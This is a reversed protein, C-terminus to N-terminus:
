FSDRERQTRKLLGVINGNGSVKVPLFFSNLPVIEFEDDGLPRYRGIVAKPRGDISVIVEDGPTVDEPPIFMLLDGKQWSELKNHADADSGRMSDDEMSIAFAGAGLPRTLARPTKPNSAAILLQKPPDTAEELTLIPPGLPLNNNTFADATYGQSMDSLAPSGRGTALWDLSIGMAVAIPALKKSQLIKGSEIKQITVQSIGALEALEDQSIGAAQRAEKLRDSTEKM